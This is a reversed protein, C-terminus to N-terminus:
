SPKNIRKRATELMDLEIELRRYDIVGGSQLSTTTTTTTPPENDREALLEATALVASSSEGDDDAHAAAAAPIEATKMEMELWPGFFGRNGPGMM